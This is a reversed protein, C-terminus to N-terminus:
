QANTNLKNRIQQWACCDRCQGCVCCAPSATVAKKLVPANFRREADSMSTDQNVMMEEREAIQRELEKRCIGHLHWSGGYLRKGLNLLAEVCCCTWAAVSLVSASKSLVIALIGYM